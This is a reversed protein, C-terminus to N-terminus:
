NDEEVTVHITFLLHDERKCHICTAKKSVVKKSADDKELDVVIKNLEDFLNDNQEKM